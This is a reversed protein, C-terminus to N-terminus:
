VHRDAHPLRAVKSSPDVEQSYRNLETTNTVGGVIGVEFGFIDGLPSAGSVSTHVFNASLDRVVKKFDQESLNQFTVGYSRTGMGSFLVLVAFICRSTNM